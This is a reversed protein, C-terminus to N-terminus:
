ANRQLTLHLATLSTFRTARPKVRRHDIFERNSKGIASTM